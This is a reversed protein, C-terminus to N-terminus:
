GIKRPREEKWIGLGKSITICLVGLCCFLLIFHFLINAVMFGIGNLRLRAFFFGYPECGDFGVRDVKSIWFWLQFISVSVLLLFNLASFMRSANVLPYRSPDLEPTCGTLLRWIYLPVFYLYGGFTLLLIVYIEVAKLNNKETQIILALFTAAVFLSNSLRMGPVESRAIWLALITGFWQLYFGIRIGLGYMDANGTFTCTAMAPTLIRTNPKSLTYSIGPQFNNEEAATRPAPFHLKPPPVDFRSRQTV